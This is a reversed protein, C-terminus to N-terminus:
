TDRQVSGGAHSRTHERGDRREGDQGSKEHDRCDGRGTRADRRRGDADVVRRQGTELRAGHGPRGIVAVGQARPEVPEVQRHEAGLLEVVVDVHVEVDEDVAHVDRDRGEHADVDRVLVQGDQM